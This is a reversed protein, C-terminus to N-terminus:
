RRAPGAPRQREAARLREWQDPRAVMARVLAQDAAADQTTLDGRTVQQAEQHKGQLNLALALNARVREDARPHGAAERLVREADALRSSLVYSLGLNSLVAPDGPQLKLASEYYDQAIRHQGLQDQIAGQVSLIRWNPRDPTHARSLIEQADKLRGGEALAKGYAALVEQDTSNRIAATQLVAIAQATQGSERLVRGYALSIRKDGPKRDYQAGLQEAAARRESATLAAGANISGTIDSGNRNLCGALGVAIAAAVLLRAARAASIPRSTIPM